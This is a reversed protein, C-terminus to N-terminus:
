PTTFPVLKAVTGVQLSTCSGRADATFVVSGSDHLGLVADVYGPTASLCALTTGAQDRAECVVYPAADPTSVVTRCLIYQLTDASARAPM